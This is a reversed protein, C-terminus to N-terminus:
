LNLGSVWHGKVKRREEGRGFYQLDGGEDRGKEGLNVPL